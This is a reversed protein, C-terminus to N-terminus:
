YYNKKQHNPNHKTKETKLIIEREKITTTDKAHETDTPSHKLSTAMITAPPCAHEESLPTCNPDTAKSGVQRENELIPAQTIEREKITTTEKAQEKHTPSHKLATAM